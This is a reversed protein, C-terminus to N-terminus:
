RIFKGLLGDPKIFPRLEAYTFFYSGDPQLAQIVRPFEPDYLFTLGRDSLRFEKFSDATFSLERIREKLSANQEKDTDFENKDIRAIIGRKEAELKKNVMGALKTLSNPKLVDALKVVEGNNLNIIRNHTNTSPYAGAGEMMLSIDLLSNRNYNVKYDLSSLWTDSLSEKLSTEFVSWYSLNNEIKRKLAPTQIGSIVPYRVEVTRKYKEINRGKRTYIVKKPTIKVANNQASINEATFVLSLFSLFAVFLTKKM